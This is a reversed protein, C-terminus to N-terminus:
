FKYSITFAASNAVKVDAKFNPNFAFTFGLYPTTSFAENAHDIYRTQNGTGVTETWRSGFCTTKSITKSDFSYKQSTFRATVSVGGNVQLKESAKYYAGLDEEISIATYVYKMKDLKYTTGNIGVSSAATFSVNSAPSYIYAYSPTINFESYGAQSVSQISDEYDKDNYKMNGFSVHVGYKNQHNDKAATLYDVQGWYSLVHYGKDYNYLDYEPDGAPVVNSSVKDYDIMYQIGFDPEITGNEAAFKTGAEFGFYSFGTKESQKISPDTTFDQETVTEPDLYFFGGIGWNSIGLLANGLLYPKNSSQSEAEKETQTNFRSYKYTGFNGSLTGALFLGNDLKKAGGISPLGSNFGMFLMGNGVDVNSWETVDLVDDTEASYQGATSSYTPSAVAFSLMCVAILALFVKKM